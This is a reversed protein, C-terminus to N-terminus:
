SQRGIQRGYRKQWEERRITDVIEQGEVTNWPFGLDDGIMDWVRRWDLLERAEMALFIRYEEHIERV